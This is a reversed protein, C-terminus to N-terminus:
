SSSASIQSQEAFVAAKLIMRLIFEALLATLGLVVTAGGAAREDLCYGAVSKQVAGGIQM